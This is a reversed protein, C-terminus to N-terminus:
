LQKDELGYDSAALDSRRESADRGLGTGQYCFGEPWNGQYFVLAPVLPPTVPAMLWEENVEWVEGEEVEESEEDSFDDDKFDGDEGFLAVLDEEMDMVPAVMQEEAEAIPEAVEKIAPVVMPEDVMAELEGLLYDDAKLWKNNNNNPNGAHGPLPGPVFFDYAPHPELEDKPFDFVRDPSLPEGM